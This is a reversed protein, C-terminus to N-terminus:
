EEILSRENQVLFSSPNQGELGGDASATPPISVAEIEGTSRTVAVVGPAVCDQPSLGISM